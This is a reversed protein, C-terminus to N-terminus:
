LVIHFANDIIKDEWYGSQHVQIYGYHYHVISDIMHDWTGKQISSIAVAFFVAFLISAATILTRRKNRWINRVALKFVQNM